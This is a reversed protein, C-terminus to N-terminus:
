QATSITKLTNLYPRNSGFHKLRAYPVVLHIEQGFFRERAATISESRSRDHEDEAPAEAPTPQQPAEEPAGTDADSEEAAMAVGRDLQQEANSFERDLESCEMELHPSAELEARLEESSRSVPEPDFRPMKLVLPKFNRRPSPSPRARDDEKKQMEKMADSARRLTQTASPLPRMTVRQLGSGPLLSTMVRRPEEKEQVRYPAFLVEQDADIDLFGEFQEFNELDSDLESRSGHSKPRYFSDSNRRYDLQKPEPSSFSRMVYGRQTDAENQNSPSSYSRPLQSRIGQMKRQQHQAQNTRTAILSKGKAAATLHPEKRRM